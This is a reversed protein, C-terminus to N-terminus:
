WTRAASGPTAAATAGDAVPFRRTLPRLVACFVPTLLGTWLTTAILGQVLLLPTLTGMDLLLSLGGFLGFSVAGGLAGLAIEGVRGTGSLYPRLRGIGDGVLLFVLASLGVLHSGGSLLDACLGAAFGYRAGTANGDAIAFAVVTLLVFDPPWGFVDLGPAVVAQLLLATFLTVGLAATRATM